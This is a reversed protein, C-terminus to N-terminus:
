PVDASSGADAAGSGANGCNFQKGCGALNKELTASAAPAQSTCGDSCVKDGKCAKKCALLTTCGADTDCASWETPCNAQECAEKSNGGGGGGDSPPLGGGDPPPPGGGDKNAGGGDKAGGGGDKGGSGGGDKPPPNAVDTGGGGGADTLTACTCTGWGTQDPRCVQVGVAGTSCTCTKSETPVCVKADSGSGTQVDSGGDTLHPVDVAVDFSLTVDSSQADYFGVGGSPTAACGAALVLPWTLCALMKVKSRMM